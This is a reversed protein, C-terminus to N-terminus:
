SAASGSSSEALFRDRISAVEIIERDSIPAAARGTCAGYYQSTLSKLGPYAPENAVARRVLNGSAAWLGSVGHAFPQLIKTRRSTQGPRWVLYDHFLDAEFFGETGAIELSACTPRAILSLVIRVTMSEICTEFEWHGHRGAQLRWDARSWDFASFLRQLISVPHPLIDAAIRAYAGDGQGTAGASFFTLSVSAIKGARDRAALVGSVSRQFAYQHTPCVHVGAARANDLIARTESENAALPKEVFLHVKRDIAARAIVAHDQSPACVHLLALDAQALMDGVDSFVRAGYRGALGQARDSNPDAVAVVSAGAQRACHAHWRGMLGAGAIGIRLGQSM